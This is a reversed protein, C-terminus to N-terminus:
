FQIPIYPISFFSIRFEAFCKFEGFFNIVAFFVINIM